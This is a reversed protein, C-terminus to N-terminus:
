NRLQGQVIGVVNMYTETVRTTGGDCMIIDTGNLAEQIMMVFNPNLAIVGGSFKNFTVLM